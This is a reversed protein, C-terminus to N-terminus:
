LESTHEESREDQTPTPKGKQKELYQAYSADRVKKEDALQKKAAESMDSEAM